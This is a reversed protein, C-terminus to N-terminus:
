IRWEHDLLQKHRKETEKNEMMRDELDSIREEAKNIRATLPKM